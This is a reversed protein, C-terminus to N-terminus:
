TGLICVVEILSSDATYLDWSGSKNTAVKLKQNTEVRYSIYIDDNDDIVIDSDCGITIEWTLLVICPGVQVLLSALRLGDGCYADLSPM